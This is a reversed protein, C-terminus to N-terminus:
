GIGCVYLAESCFPILGVGFRVVVPATTPLVPAAQITVTIPGNQRYRHPFRGFKSVGVGEESRVGSSCDKVLVIEAIM